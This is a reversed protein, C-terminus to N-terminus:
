SKEEEKLTFVWRKGKGLCSMCTPAFSVYAPSLITEGIEGKGHCTPCLQEEYGLWKLEARAKLAALFDTATM